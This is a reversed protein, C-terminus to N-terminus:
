SGLAGPDRPLRPGGEFRLVKDWREAAEPRVTISRANSATEPESFVYATDTEFDFGVIFDFDQPTFRVYTSHSDQRMLSVLPLGGVKANWKTWRVQLIALAGTAPSRVVLDERADAASPTFVGFGHIALRLRVAAEAIRGKSARDLQSADVMEALRSRPGRDKKPARYRDAAAMKAAREAETLPHSQLWYSLTGKAAGTRAAIENLSLREELRLRVCEAKLDAKPM